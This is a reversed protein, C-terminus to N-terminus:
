PVRAFPSLRFPGSRQFGLVRPGCSGRSSSSRYARRVLVSSLRVCDAQRDTLSPMGAAAQRRLRVHVGVPGDGGRDANPLEMGGPFRPPGFELEVLLPQQIHQHSGSAPSIWFSDPWPQNAGNLAREDRETFDTRPNSSLPPGFNDAGSPRRSVRSYCNPSNGSLRGPIWPSSGGPDGTHFRVPNPVVEHAAQSEHATEDPPSLLSPFPAPSPSKAGSPLLDPSGQPSPTPLSQVTGSHTPM